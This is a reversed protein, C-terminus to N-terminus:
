PEIPMGESDVMVVDAETLSTPRERYVRRLPSLFTISFETGSLGQGDLGGEAPPNGLTARESWYAAGDEGDRVVLLLSFFEGIGREIEVTGDPFQIVQGGQALTKIVAKNDSDVGRFVVSDVQKERSVGYTAQSNMIRHPTASGEASIAFGAEIGGYPLMGEPTYEELHIDSLDPRQAGAEGRYADCDLWVYSTQNAHQSM